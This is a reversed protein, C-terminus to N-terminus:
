FVQRIVLYFYGAPFCYYMADALDLIGGHGPITAASDKIRADRKFASEVLDGFISVIAMCFALISMEILGIDISQASDAWSYKKWLWTFLNAILVATFIGGIYGEYTKKPSVQLGANHSGFWRGFFYAGTDSAIPILAFLIMYFLGSSLAYLLLAHSIGVTTYFVGLLTVSISYIAGDLPRNIIQIVSACILLAVMFLPTLQLGHPAFYIAIFQHFGSLSTSDPDKINLFQAYYSFLILISFLYGITKFASGALGKDVLIYFEYLGLLAFLSVLLFPFIWNFHDFYLGCIVIIAITVGSLIRKATENM